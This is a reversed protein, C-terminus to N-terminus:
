QVIISVRRPTFYINGDLVMYYIGSPFKNKELNIEITKSPGIKISGSELMKGDGRYISYNVLEENWSPDNIYLKNEKVPNPFVRLSEPKVMLERGNNYDKILKENTLVSNSLDIISESDTEGILRSTTNVIQFNVTSPPGAIGSMNIESYATASLTYNGTPLTRGNYNGNKDGFLAYPAGNETRTTNVPGSLSIFVSGVTTPNTNVKINLSLSGVQSSLFQTGNVIPQIESNNASNILIFGSISLNSIIPNVTINSSATFSGDQTRATITASGAAMATVLGSSNVTAVSSNSTSWMVSKNTANSPSVTSTLLQTGGVEISATSPTVTIGTVAIITSTIISFQITSTPGVTGTRNSGSYPIASLTYNGNPLTGGKYIGNNDGFLAYPAGNETRSANLPGTLSIFVSGVTTPNTNVKVNLSLGGVNSSLLQTGNTLTEIETNNGANILVFSAISLSTTNQTVTISSTATFNGDQTRATITASGVALGSVLGNSNVSAVNSNSSSWIISKNTANSPSVSATLQTTSGAQFSATTPSVAISTVPVNIVEDSCKTEQNMLSLPNSSNKHLVLRDILHFSSRASLEMTYVGSSNFQVYIDHADNDSTYTNWTWNLSNMYIKFWGGSGAGNPNPTKGSGKPYIKTTGSGKLAFYDSADPFRVWTDNHETSSSGNGVRSRMQFRYVGPSNIFIKTSILGNGVSSFYEPGTWSIYGSGTFGSVTSQKSWGSPISLNEAEMVVIGNIDQYPQSCTFFKTSSSFELMSELLLDPNENSFGMNKPHPANREVSIGYAISYILLLFIISFSTLIQKKM